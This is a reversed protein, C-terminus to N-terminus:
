VTEFAFCAVSPPSPADEQTEEIEMPAEGKDDTVEVGM